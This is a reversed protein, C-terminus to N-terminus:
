CAQAISCPRSCGFEHVAVLSLSTTPVSDTSSNLEALVSVRALAGSGFPRLLLAVQCSALGASVRFTSEFGRPWNALM